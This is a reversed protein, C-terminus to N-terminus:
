KPIIQPIRSSIDGRSSAIAKRLIYLEANQSILTRFFATTAYARTPPLPSLHLKYYAREARQRTLALFCRACDNGVHTRPLYGFGFPGRFGIFRISKLVRKYIYLKSFRDQLFIFVDCDAIGLLFLFM